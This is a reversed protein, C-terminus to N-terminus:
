FDSVAYHELRVIMFAVLIKVSSSIGIIQVLECYMGVYTFM